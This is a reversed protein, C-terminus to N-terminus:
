RRPSRNRRKRLRNRLRSRRKPPNRRRRRLSPRSPRRPQLNQRSRDRPQRPPLSRPRRAPRRRRMRRRRPSSLGPRSLKPLQKPPSRRRRNRSRPSPNRRRRLRPLRSSRRKKELAALQQNRVELLKRLDNVNRELEAIRAQAEKLAREQAIRDDEIAARTRPSDAKGPEVRSLRLQDKPEGPTPVEPKPAIRGSTERGPARAGLPAVAVAGALARRYQAFQAMHSQVLRNAEVVDVSMADSRDPVTLIRGSRVLNINERVFADRNARFLAVLMQNLTVGEPLHSRAIAALTEGKKVEHTVARETRPAAPPAIPREELRPEPKATALPKAEPAPKPESPPPAAAVTPRGRYEPPDLLFTYERVLRGTNWQLEVLVDLFPENVPQTTRMRVIPRGGRREISFQAGFLVPSPEIGAQRFAEPSALRASLGEEEGPQLSVIEIEAELPQGLSSLVTLRGLGAAHAILPM